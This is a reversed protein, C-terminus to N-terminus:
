GGYGDAKKLSAYNEIHQGFPDNIPTVGEVNFVTSRYVGNTANVEEDLWIVRGTKKSRINTIRDRQTIIVNSPFFMRAYDINTYNNDFNETTGAVRVGGDIVGHVLCPVSWVKVNTDDSDDDVPVWRETMAWSEPDQEVVWQGQQSLDVKDGSATGRRLVDAYFVYRAGTFCVM